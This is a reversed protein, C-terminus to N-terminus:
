VAASLAARLVDATQSATVKWSFRGAWHQAASLKEAHRKSADLVLSHMGDACHVVTPEVLIAHDGCVEPIPGVNTALVPTRCAMAEILPLCFGEMLTATVCGLAASYLAPLDEMPVAQIFRIDKHRRFTACEIGGAILVLEVGPLRAQLFADILMGVNKHQKCNGVYLLFPKELGYRLMVEEKLEKSQPFFASSVGPYTVSTKAAIRHGYHSAIESKTSESVCCVHKANRLANRMVCRYALRKLFSAENPFTHLILDHVTCVFPVPCFIPINFQPSFFLDCGTQQIINPFETHEQFSYHRFPAEQLTLHQTRVETLWEERNSAVFLVYSWEDHRLVLEQVLNRTFTGLGSLTSAFRCDIGVLPKMLHLLALLSYFHLM